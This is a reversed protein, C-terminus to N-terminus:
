AFRLKSFVPQDEFRVDAGFMRLSYYTQWKLMAKITYKLDTTEKWSRAETLSHLVYAARQDAMSQNMSCDWVTAINANVGESSAVTVKVLNTSLDDKIQDTVKQLVTKIAPLLKNTTM